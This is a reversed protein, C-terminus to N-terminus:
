PPPLDRSSPGRSPLCALPLRPIAPGAGRLRDSPATVRRPLQRSAAPIGTRLYPLASSATGESPPLHRLDLEGAAQAQTGAAAEDCSVFKTLKIVLIM